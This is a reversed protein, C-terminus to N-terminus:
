WPPAGHVWRGALMTAEVRAESIREPQAIIDTDLVVLDAAYGPLLLGRRREDGVAYAGAATFGLVADAVPIRQEPYWPERQDATRHVAAHIGALPDLPEVPADSGFM